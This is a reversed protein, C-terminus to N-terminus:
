RLFSHSVTGLIISSGDSNIWLMILDGFINNPDITLKIM